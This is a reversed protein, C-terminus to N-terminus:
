TELDDPRRELRNDVFSECAWLINIKRRTSLELPTPVDHSLVNNNKRVHDIVCEPIHGERGGLLGAKACYRYFRESLPALLFPPRPVLVIQVRVTHGENM